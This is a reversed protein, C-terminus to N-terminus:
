SKKKIFNLVFSLGLSPRYIVKQNNKPIVLTNILDFKMWKPGFSFGATITNYNIASLDISNVSAYGIGGSIRFFQKILFGGEIELFNGNSSILSKSLLTTNNVNYKGYNGFLGISTNKKSKGLNVGIMSNLQYSLQNSVSNNLNKVDDFLLNGSGGIKFSVLKHRITKNIKSTEFTRTHENSYTPQYYHTSENSKNQSRENNVYENSKRKFDVVCCSGYTKHPKISAGVKNYSEDLCIKRHGLSPVDHDILLSIAIDRGENHGYSCCEGEFGNSCSVRNHGVLGAEGSEKAFCDALLFMSEDFFLLGVPTRNQLEVLLSQKYASTKLYDGYKLPGLYDKVEVLAFKQPYQRALNLYKIVEKEESSISSINVATNAKQLEESTWNQSIALFQSCFLLTFLFTKKM